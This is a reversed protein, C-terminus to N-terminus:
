FSDTVIAGNLIITLGKNQCVFSRLIDRVIDEQFRFKHFVKKDPTINILAGNEESTEESGREVLHGKSFRAWFCVGDELSAVYFETSTASAFAYELLHLDTTDCGMGCHMGYQAKNVITEFPIGLGFERISIRDDAVDIIQRNGRRMKYEFVYSDLFSRIFYYIGDRCDSGDGICGVYMVPRLRMHEHWEFTQAGSSSAVNKTKKAM